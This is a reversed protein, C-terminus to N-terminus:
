YPCGILVSSSLVKDTNFKCTAILRYVGGPTLVSGDIVQVVRNNSILPADVLTIPADNNGTDQLIASPQSLVDGTVMNPSMDVAIAVEETTAIYLTNPTGDLDSYLTPDIIVTM